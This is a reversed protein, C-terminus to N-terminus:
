YLQFSVVIVSQLGVCLVMLFLCMFFVAVVCNFYFMVHINMVNLSNKYSPLCAGLNYVKEHEVCSLM